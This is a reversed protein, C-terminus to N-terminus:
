DTNRGGTKNGDRDVREAMLVILSTLVEAVMEPDPM